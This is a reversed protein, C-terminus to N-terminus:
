AEKRGDHDLAYQGMRLFKQQQLYVQFREASIGPKDGEVHQHSAATKYDIASLQQAQMQYQQCLEVLDLQGAVVAVVVTMAKIEMARMRVELDGELLALHLLDRPGLCPNPWFPPGWQTGVVRLDEAHEGLRLFARATPCLM